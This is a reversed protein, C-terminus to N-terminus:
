YVFTAEVCSGVLVSVQLSVRDGGIELCVVKTSFLLLGAFSNPNSSANRTM